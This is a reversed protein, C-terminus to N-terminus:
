DQTWSSLGLELAVAVVSLCAEDLSMWLPNQVREDHATKHAKLYEGSCTGLDPTQNASETPTDALPFISCHLSFLQSTLLRWPDSRKWMTNNDMHAEM